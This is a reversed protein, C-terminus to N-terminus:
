PRLFEEETLTYMPSDCGNYWICMYPKTTEAEAAGSVFLGYKGCEEYFKQLDADPLGLFLGYIDSRDECSHLLSEDSYVLTGEGNVRIFSNERWLKDHIKELAEEDLPEKLVAMFGYSRVNDSM